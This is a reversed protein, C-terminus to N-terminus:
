KSLTDICTEGGGTPLSTATYYIILKNSTFTGYGSLVVNNGYNANDIFLSDHSCNIRALVNVTTGYGGFNNITLMNSGASAGTAAYTYSRSSCASTGSLNGIFSAACDAPIVIINFPYEKAVTTPSKVTIKAPYTGLKANSDAFFFHQIYTPVANVSDQTLRVSDPLGTLKMSVKENPDGSLFKVKVQMDYSGKAPIYIDKVVDEGVTAVSYQLPVSVYKKGCSYMIIGLMIFFLLKKMRNNKSAFSVGILKFKIAM